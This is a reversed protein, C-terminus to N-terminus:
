GILIHRLHGPQHPETSRTCAQSGFPQQNLEWDPCLGPGWHPVHSLCGISTDRSRPHKEGQSEGERGRERFICVYFRKLFLIHRLHHSAGDMIVHPRILTWRLLSSLSIRRNAKFPLQQSTAAPPPARTAPFQPGREVSVIVQIRVVAVHARSPVSSWFSPLWRVGPTCGQSGSCLVRCLPAWARVRLFQSIIFAM